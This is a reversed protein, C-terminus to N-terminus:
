MKVDHAEVIRKRRGHRTLSRKGEGAKGSSWRSNDRQGYVRGASHAFHPFIRLEKMSGRCGRPGSFTMGGEIRALAFTRRGWCKKAGNGVMAVGERMSVIRGELTECDECNELSAEEAGTTETTAQDDSPKGVTAPRGGAGDGSDAATEAALDTELEGVKDENEVIGRGDLGESM